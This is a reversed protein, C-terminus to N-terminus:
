RLEERRNVVRGIVSGTASDFVIEYIRDPDRLQSITRSAHTKFDASTDLRGMATHSIEYEGCKRARADFTAAIEM